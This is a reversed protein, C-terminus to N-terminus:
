TRQTARPQEKRLRRSKRCRHRRRDIIAPRSTRALVKRPTGQVNQKCCLSVPESSRCPRMDVMADIQRRHRYGANRLADPASSRRAGSSPCGRCLEHMPEVASQGPVHACDANAWRESTTDAPMALRVAAVARAVAWMGPLRCSWDRIRRRRACSCVKVRPGNGRIRSVAEGPQSANQEHERRYVVSGARRNSCANFHLPIKARRIRTRTRCVASM